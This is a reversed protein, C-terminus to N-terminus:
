VFLYGIIVEVIDTIRQNPIFYFLLDLTKLDPCNILPGEQILLFAKKPISKM